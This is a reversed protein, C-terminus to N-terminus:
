ELKRLKLYLDKIAEHRAVYEKQSSRTAPFLAHSRLASLRLQIVTTCLLEKVKGNGQYEERGCITNTCITSVSETTGIFDVHFGELLCLRRTVQLFGPKPQFGGDKLVAGVM